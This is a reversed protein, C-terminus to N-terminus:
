SIFAGNELNRLRHTVDEISARMQMMMETVQESMDQIGTQVGMSASKVEEIAQSRDREEIQIPSPIKDQFGKDRSWQIAEMQPMSVYDPVDDFDQEVPSPSDTFASSPEPLQVVEPEPPMEAAAPQFAEPAGPPPPPEYRESEPAPEGPQPVIEEPESLFPEPQPLSEYDEIAQTQPYDFAVQESASPAGEPEFQYPPVPDTSTEPLEPSFAPEQQPLMDQLVERLTDGIDRDPEGFEHPEPDSFGEFAPEQSSLVDMQFYPDADESFDYSFVGAEEEDFFPDSISFDGPM